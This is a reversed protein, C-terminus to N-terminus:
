LVRPDSVETFGVPDEFSAELLQLFRHTEESLETLRLNLWLKRGGFVMFSISEISPALIM